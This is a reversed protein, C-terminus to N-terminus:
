QKFKGKDMNIKRVRSLYLIPSQSVTNNMVIHNISTLPLLKGVKIKLNKLIILIGHGLKLITFLINLFLHIRPLIIIKM